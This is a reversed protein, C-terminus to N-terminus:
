RVARRLRVLVAVNLAVSAAGLAVAAKSWRDPAPPPPLLPMDASGGGLPPRAAGPPRGAAPRAAVWPPPDGGLARQLNAAFEATVKSAQKAVIKQGLSGLAGALVMEADVAVNTGGPVGRLLVTSETRMNGVAGRVSRGAARFRIMEGDVRELVTVKTDFTATMPGVAQTARVQVNQEDLIAVQEVGPMCRAVSEPEEFFKWVTGVPETVVFEEHLKM